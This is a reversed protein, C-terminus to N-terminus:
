PSTFPHRLRHMAQQGRDSVRVVLTSDETASSALFPTLGGIPTGPAPRRFRSLASLSRSVPPYPVNTITAM